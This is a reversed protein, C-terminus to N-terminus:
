HLYCYNTLLYLVMKIVLQNLCSEKKIFGPVILAETSKQTKSESILTSQRMSNVLTFTHIVPKPSDTIHDPRGKLKVERYLFLNTNHGNSDISFFINTAIDLRIRHCKGYGWGLGWVGLFSELPLPLESNRWKKSGLVYKESCCIYYLHLQLLM